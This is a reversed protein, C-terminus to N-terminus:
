PKLAAAPGTLEHLAGAIRIGMGLRRALALDGVTDVGLRARLDAEVVARAGLTTHRQASGAGYAVKLHEPQYGLEHRQM